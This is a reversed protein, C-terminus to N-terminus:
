TEGRAIGSGNDGEGDTVVGVPEIVILIVVGRPVVGETCEMMSVMGDSAGRGIGAGLGDCIRVCLMLLSRCYRWSISSALAGCCRSIMSLTRAILSSTISMASRNAAGLSAGTSYAGGTGSFSLLGLTRLSTLTRGAPGRAAGLTTSSDGGGDLIGDGSESVSVM